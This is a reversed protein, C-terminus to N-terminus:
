FFFLYIFIFFIKPRHTHSSIGRYDPSRLNKEKEFSHTRILTHGESPFDGRFFIYTECQKEGKEVYYYFVM